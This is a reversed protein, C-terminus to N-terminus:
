NESQCNRRTIPMGTDSLRLKEPNQRVHPSEISRYPHFKDPHVSLRPKEKGFKVQISEPTYSKPGLFWFFSFKQSMKASYLCIGGSIVVFNYALICAHTTHKLIQIKYSKTLIGCIHLYKRESCKRLIFYM